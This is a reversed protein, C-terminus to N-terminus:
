ILITHKQEKEISVCLARVDCVCVDCMLCLWVAPVCVFINFVFCLVFSAVAAAATVAATLYQQM